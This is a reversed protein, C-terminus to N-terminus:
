AIVLVGSERLQEVTSLVDDTLSSADPYSEGIVRVIEGLSRSGDCLGWVLAATANLYVARTQRPHYLLLEGEVVEMEVDAAPRPVASLREEMM